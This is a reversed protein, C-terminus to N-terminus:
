SKLWNYKYGTRKWSDKISIYTTKIKEKIWNAIIEESKKENVIETLLKFDDTIDAKHEPIKNKLKVISCVKMGSNADMEFAKSIEGVNLREVVKAVDQHMFHLDEMKYRSSQAGTTMDTSAMIGHNNKTNKDESFLIVAQEFSIKGSRIQAAVSDLRALTKKAEEDSVEPRRLIHRCNIKDGKREILQIIHYGYETKVVKSVTKPDTLSFAVSSFEPVLDARGM